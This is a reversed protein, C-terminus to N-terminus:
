PEKEEKMKRLFYAIGRLVFDVCPIAVSNGLAKYRASDSAGPIDTWHDPFGQLRECELPTLRRILKRNEVICKDESVYQNNIGKHDTYGITGVTNQYPECVLDTADKHQRASQTATVRNQLFEDSRQRSFVAHRDASTLTYSIDPQCGLGNGGNQVERDIINGAICYSEPMDSVLPVNNGGTGYRASMTPAVEHPGTYRADIGHNEFLIQQNNGGTEAEETLAPDPIEETGASGQQIGMVLPPHGSMGARLTATIDVSVDMREGGQDNLCLCEEKKEASEFKRMGEAVFTQMQMNTTAMLAGSIGNLNITEERQNIHFAFIDVQKEEAVRSGGSDASSNGAATTVGKGQGQGEAPDRLLREQEFLIKPATLGGFDAVLFIRRRRQAVGWYQADLVRWALSFQDGLIAAGASEWRGTDPRPVHCTSDKIHVIEEIVARFDEGNASSFAGPVNEWVLYRPRIFDDSVGRREDEARMEKVIRVQDMFLGSREGALGKRLGAVSLDQCPSGGCIVDVPPLKAGDLKTIDGVHIMDPFRLKTVRMPFPEIESAWVPVGGCHVAALPFGGIGDFLSGLTMM